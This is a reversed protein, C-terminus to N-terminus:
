DARATEAPPQQLRHSILAATPVWGPLMNAAHTLGGPEQTKATARARLLAAPIRVKVFEAPEGANPATVTAAAADPLVVTGPPLQWLSVRAAGPTSLLPTSTAIVDYPPPRRAALGAHLGESGLVIIALTSATTIRWSSPRGRSSRTIRTVHLLLSCLILLVSLSCVLLLISWLPHRILSLLQHTTHPTFWQLQDTGMKSQLTALNAQTPQHYPALYHARLYYFLARPHEGNQYALHGLMALAAVAVTLEEQNHWHPPPELLQQQTAGALVTAAQRFQGQDYLAVAEPYATQWLQQWSSSTATATPAPEASAWAPSFQNLPAIAMTAALLHMIVRTYHTCGTFITM